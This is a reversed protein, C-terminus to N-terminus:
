HRSHLQQQGGEGGRLVHIDRIYSSDTGNVSPIILKVTQIFIANLARMSQVVQFGLPMVYIYICIYMSLRSSCGTMRGFKSLLVVWELCLCLVSSLCM